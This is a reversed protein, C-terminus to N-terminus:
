IRSFNLLIEPIFDLYDRSVIIINLYYTLSESFETLFFARFKKLLVELLAEDCEDLSDLVCYVNGLVPDRLM